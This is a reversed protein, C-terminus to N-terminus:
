YAKQDFQGSALLQRLNKDQSQLIVLVNNVAFVTFPSGSYQQAWKNYQSAIEHATLNDFYYYCAIDVYNHSGAIQNVRLGEFGTANQLETKMIKGSELPVNAFYGAVTDKKPRLDANSEYAFGSPPPNSPLYTSMFNSLEGFPTAPMFVRKVNMFQFYVKNVGDVNRLDDYDYIGLVPIGVLIFLFVLFGLALKFLRSGFFAKMRIKLNGLSRELHYKAPNIRALNEIEEELSTVTENLLLYSEHWEIEIKKTEAPSMRHVHRMTICRAIIAFINQGIQQDHKLSDMFSDHVMAIRSKCELFRQENEPNLAEGGRISANFLDLFRRWAEALEKCDVLRRDLVPNQM